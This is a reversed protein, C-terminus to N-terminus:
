KHKRDMQEDILMCCCYWLQRPMWARPTSNHLCMAILVWRVTDSLSTMASSIHAMVLQLFPRLGTPGIVPLVQLLEPQSPRLRSQAAMSSQSCFTLMATTVQGNLLQLLAKRVGADADSIRPALAELLPGTNKTAQEPHRALLDALGAVAASRTRESYHGVQSLLEQSSCCTNTNSM